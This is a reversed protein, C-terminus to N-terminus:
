RAGVGGIISIVSRIARSLCNTDKLVQQSPKRDTANRSEYIFFLLLHFLGDVVDDGLFVDGRGLFREILGFIGGSDFRCAGGEAVM